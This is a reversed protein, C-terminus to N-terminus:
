TPSRGARSTTSAMRTWPRERVWAVVSPQYVIKPPGRSDTTEETTVILSRLSFCSSGSPFTMSAVRAWSRDMVGAVGDPQCVIKPGRNDTTGETTMIPSRLSSRPSGSSFTKSTVRARLRDLARAVVSPLCVIKPDPGARSHVTPSM